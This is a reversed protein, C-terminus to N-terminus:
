PGSRVPGGFLAALRRLDKQFAGTCARAKGPGTAIDSRLYDWFRAPHAIYIGQYLQFPEKPPTSSLFWEILRGTEADWQYRKDTKDTRQIPTEFPTGEPTEPPGSENNQPPIHAPISGVFGVFAREDTQQFPTQPTWDLWESRFATM